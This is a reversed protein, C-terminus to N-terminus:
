YEPLQYGNPIPLQIETYWGAARLVYIALGLCVAVEIANLINWAFLWFVRPSGEPKGFPRSLLAILGLLLAYGCRALFIGALALFFVVLVAALPGMLSQLGVVVVALIALLVVRKALSWAASIIQERDVAQGEIATVAKVEM